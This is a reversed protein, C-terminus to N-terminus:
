VFVSTNLFCSQFVYVVRHYQVCVQLKTWTKLKATFYFILCYFQIKSIFYYLQWNKLSECYSKHLFFFGLFKDQQDTQKLLIENQVEQGTEKPSFLVKFKYERKM